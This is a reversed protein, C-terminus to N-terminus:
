AARLIRHNVSAAAWALAASIDGAALYPYDQLIEDQTVGEGLMSLIDSVRMRTGRICPRGGCIAPDISIRRELAEAPPKRKAQASPVISVRWRQNAERGFRAAFEDFAARLERGLRSQLDVQQFWNALARETERGNRRRYRLLYEEANMGRYGVFKSPGFLWVDGDRQAYWAAHQRIRGALAPNRAVERSYTSINEAVEDFSSVIRSEM